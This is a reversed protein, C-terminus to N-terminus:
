FRVGFAVRIARGGTVGPLPQVFNTGATAQGFRPGQIYGTRLGNADVPSNNDVSITKDWSIMKENQFLNYVELKFWPSLSKWVAINYTTALDMVGYGKFDYAGRDGFFVTPRTSASIDTAPYGPNRALMTATVPTAVTLSYVGGSNVRWMPAVDVSGFRGMHQTYVGYVRLKHRQFNDLRGEPALRDLAPGYIEPFNGFVSPIGPQNAAEGAFNGNNELQLTYQGNIQINDRFRYGSAFMMAQYDRYLDNTNDYVKTTVNGVLPVNTLGNSLAVFDEVFGTQTRWVYTMRGYGRGLERGIGTTFEKTLPSKIDDAIKVNATPFSTFVIRTYNALDFGPAFDGGSGAPGTYVYDIESPRGVNTNVAFQVQSYKGSYHGYTGFVTTKGDGMVDYTAGLRPMFTATSVSNIDQSDNSRVMEFRTGLDLTLRPGVTWRDQGYFSTTKIDIKAGRQAQFTWVQSTNPTFVPIPTGQADKAIVGGTQQYDTVFVAGTSSQSNGGIGTSVFYEGGGKLEHSGFRNSSLLSSVSGTVQRNNRDEPDTADLYPANYLLGGPVGALAGQTRIPSDFLSTSSGGNHRFGQRKESYQLTGFVSKSVAGNYNAAFLTNPTQRTTLTSADLLTAASVASRNAEETANNIYSVQVVQAPALTATGKLEGRHNTTKLTYGAGNQAFTQATNATEARGASFFWVRNKLVPGGFTGEHAKSLIDAHKINSARELPTQTVWSPNSLGERFSGSFSNGGSRTIVNIVGGSFRGYEASIGNTVVSSEQIADEIFLHNPTGQVNDNIDVGNVMFVNDFGFSGSMSLAATPNAFSTTVGASLEGVDYPRRGMPLTDVVSKTYTLSSTPRAIPSPAEATVTVTETVSAPSMMADVNALGGVNVEVNERVASQFGSLDFSVRYTGPMLGRLYYVGNGDSVEVRDGQLSPSSVTVTVGPLALKDSSQVVGSITGTQVGQAAVPSALALVCLGLLSVWRLCKLQYM